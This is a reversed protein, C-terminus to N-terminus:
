YPRVGQAEWLLFVNREQETMAYTRKILKYTMHVIYFQILIGTVLLFSIYSSSDETPVILRATRFVISLVLYVLYPITPKYRYLRAGWYGSLVQLDTCTM